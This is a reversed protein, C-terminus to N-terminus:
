KMTSAASPSSTLLNLIVLRSAPAPLIRRRHHYRQQQTLDTFPVKKPLYQRSLRNTHENLGWEWSHYAHAFCTDIELAQAPEQAASFEKGNDV